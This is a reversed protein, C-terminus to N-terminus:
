DDTKKVKKVRAERPVRPAKPVRTGIKSLTELVQEIPAWVRVSEGSSFNFMVQSPSGKVPTVSVVHDTNFCIVDGAIDALGVMAANVEVKNYALFKSM